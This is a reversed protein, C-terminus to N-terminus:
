DWAPLDRVHDFHRHTLLVAQISEREERSTSTMLSGADIAITGDVLFCTHRVNGVELNHAGLVRVRM